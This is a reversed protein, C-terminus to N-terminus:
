RAAIEAEAGLCCSEPVTEERVLLVPCEARQIVRRATHSAFFTWPSKSRPEGLVLLDFGSSNEIIAEAPLGEVILTRNKVARQRLSETLGRLQSVATVRLQRMLDEATGCHTLAAPPNIDIVHLLTLTAGCRCALGVAHEVASASGPSFDTPVLIRQPRRGSKQHNRGHSLSGFNPSHETIAALPTNQRQECPRSTAEVLSKEQLTKAQYRM